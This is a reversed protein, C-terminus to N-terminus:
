SSNWRTRLDECLPDRLLLPYGHYAGTEANELTAELPFGDNTVAWVNQPWGNREQVSILGRRIGETLLAQAVAREFVGAGDCLTKDPRPRSPPTLGFDGPNRKHVPNGAYIARQAIEELEKQRQPLAPADRLRRKPNGTRRRNM